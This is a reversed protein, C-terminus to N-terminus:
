RRPHPEASRWGSEGFGPELAGPELAGPELAGPELAWAAHAPGPGPGLGWPGRSSAEPLDPGVFGM